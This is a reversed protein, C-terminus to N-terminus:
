FPAWGTIEQGFEPPANNLDIKPPFGSYECNRVKSFKKKFLTNSNKSNVLQAHSFLETHYILGIKQSLTLGSILLGQM